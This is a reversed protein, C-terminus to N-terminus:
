VWGYRSTISFASRLSGRSRQVDALAISSAMLPSETGSTAVSTESGPCDGAPVDAVIAIAGCATEVGVDLSCGM